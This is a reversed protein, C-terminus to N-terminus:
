KINLNSVISKQNKKIMMGAIKFIFSKNQDCVKVINKIANYNINFIKKINKYKKTCSFDIM